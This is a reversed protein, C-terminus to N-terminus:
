SFMNSLVWTEINDKENVTHVKERHTLFMVHATYETHQTYMKINLELLRVIM